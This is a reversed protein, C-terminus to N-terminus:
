FYIRTRQRRHRGEGGGTDSGGTNGFGLANETVSVQSATISGTGCGGWSIPFGAPNPAATPPHSEAHSLHASRAGDGTHGSGEAGAVKVTRLAWPGGTRRPVPVVDPVPTFSLSFRTKGTVVAQQESLLVEWRSVGALMSSARSM